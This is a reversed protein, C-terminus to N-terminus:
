LDGGYWGWLWALPLDGWPFGHLCGNGGGSGGGGSGGTRSDETGRDEFGNGRFGSGKFGNGKFGSGKFGNGKFGNEKFGNGKFGSRRFGSGGFGNGKFGSRKFGREGFGLGEGSGGGSGVGSFDGMCGRVVVGCVFACALVQLVEKEEYCDGEQEMAAQLLGNRMQGGTGMCSWSLFYGYVRCGSIEGPVFRVAVRVIAVKLM